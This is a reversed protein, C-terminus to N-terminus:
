RSAISLYDCSSCYGPIYTSDRPLIFLPLKRYYGTMKSMMHSESQISRLIFMNNSGSFWQKSGKNDYNGWRTCFIPFDTFFLDHNVAM